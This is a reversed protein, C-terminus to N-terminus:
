MAMRFLGSGGAACDVMARACAPLAGAKAGAANGHIPADSAPHAKLLM